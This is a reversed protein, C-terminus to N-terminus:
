PVVFLEEPPPTMTFWCYPDIARAQQFSREAAENDGGMQAIRGLAMQAWARLSAPGEPQQALYRRTFTEAPESNRELAFARAVGLLVPSRSPDLALTRDTHTTAKEIDGKWAYEHALHEHLRADDGHEVALETWLAIREGAKDKLAFECRAAAGEVADRAQIAEVQALAKKRDGGLETPNNGYLSVLLRRAELDDPDLAVAKEAAASAKNMQAVMETRDDAHAKLIGNYIAVLAAWRDYDGRQPALVVAREIATQASDLERTVGGRQFELRALEFWAAANRPRASLEEDLVHKADDVKGAVRLEYAKTIVDSEDASHAAVKQTNMPLGCVGSVIMAVILTALRPHEWKM